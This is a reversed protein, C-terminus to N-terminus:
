FKTRVITLPITTKTVSFRTNPVRFETGERGKQGHWGKDRENDGDIVAGLIKRVREITDQRLGVSVELDDNPIIARRIIGNGNGGGVGGLILPNTHSTGRM